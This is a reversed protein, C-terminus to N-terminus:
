QFSASPSSSSSSLSSSHPDAYTSIVAAAVGTALRNRRVRRAARDDFGITELLSFQLLNSFRFRRWASRAGFEFRIPENTDCGDRDAQSFGKQALDEGPRIRRRNKKRRWAVVRASIQQVSTNRAERAKERRGGAAVLPILM